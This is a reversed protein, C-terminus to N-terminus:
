GHGRAVLGAGEPELPIKSSTPSSIPLMSLTRMTALESRSKASMSAAFATRSALSKRRNTSPSVTKSAASVRFTKMRLSEILRPDLRIEQTIVRQDKLKPRPQLPFASFNLAKLPCNPM